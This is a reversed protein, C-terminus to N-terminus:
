SELLPFIEAIRLELIPCRIYISLAHVRTRQNQEITTLKGLFGLGRLVAAEGSSTQIAERGLVDSSLFDSLTQIAGRRALLDPNLVKSGASM